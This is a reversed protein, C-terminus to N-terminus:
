RPIATEACLKTEFVVATTTEAAIGVVASDADGGRVRNQCHRKACLMLGTFRELLNTSKLHKHHAVPLRYFTWTEEINTEVWACLKPYKVSRKEAM